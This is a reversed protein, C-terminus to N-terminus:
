AAEKMALWRPVSITEIDDSYAPWQGSARCSALIALEREYTARGIALGEADLCLVNVAYPAVKEIAIFCFFSAGVLDLYYAAQRHYGWKAIQRAFGETSADDTTKIDAVTTFGSDDVLLCDIRGKRLLGSPEHLKFVSVEKQSENVFRSAISHRQIAEAALRLGESQDSDIIPLTQAAKWAKGASSRFDMGDPRVVHSTALRDPELAALHLLTGFLQSDTSEKEATKATLYHAPSRAIHKLDSQAEGPAARYVHDPVGFFIGETNPTFPANM